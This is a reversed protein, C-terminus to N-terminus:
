FFENQLLCLKRIDQRKLNHMKRSLRGTKVEQQKHLCKVLNVPQDLNMVKLQNCM